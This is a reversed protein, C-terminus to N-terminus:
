AGILGHTTLAAQLAMVRGALQPLTVTATDYVTGNNPTGTMAAWGTDRAGVVQVNNVKYVKGTPVNINGVMILDGNHDFTAALTITTGGNPVTFIGIKSGRAAGSVWLETTQAIIAPSNQVAGGDHGGFQITGLRDSLAM